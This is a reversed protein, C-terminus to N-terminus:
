AKAADDGLDALIACDPSEDGPCAAIMGDLTERLAQLELLQEDVAALHQMALQKVERSSRAPNQWLALLEAIRSIPFGLLRARRIFRLVEMHREDFQRYGADTRPVPPLLGLQEYHRIMKASLGSHRAAQQINMPM